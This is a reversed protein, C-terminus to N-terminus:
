RKATEVNDLWPLDTALVEKYLFLLASRAQNQTSASVHRTVALDTLFREVDAPGCERPHRRECFHVFRRAWEVYAEETRISYHKLRIVHRIQDLLRPPKAGYQARTQEAANPRTAHSSLAQYSAFM